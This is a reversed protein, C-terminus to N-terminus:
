ISFLSENILLRDFRDHHTDHLSEIACDKCITLRTASLRVSHQSGVDSVLSLSAHDWAHDAVDELFDVIRRKFHLELDLYGHDFYVHLLYM